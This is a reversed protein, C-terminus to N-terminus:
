FQRAPTVDITGVSRIFSMIKMNLFMVEFFENVDNTFM